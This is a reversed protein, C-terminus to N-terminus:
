GVRSLEAAPLPLATGPSRCGLGDSVRDSLMEWHRTIM